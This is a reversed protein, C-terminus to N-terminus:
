KEEILNREHSITKNAEDDQFSWVLSENVKDADNKLFFFSFDIIMLSKWGFFSVDDFTLDLLNDEIPEEDQQEPIVM